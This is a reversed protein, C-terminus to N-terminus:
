NSAKSASWHDLHFSTSSVVMDGRRNNVKLGVTLVTIIFTFIVVAQSGSRWFTDQSIKGIDKKTPILVKNPM